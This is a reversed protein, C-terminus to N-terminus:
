GGRQQSTARQSRGARPTQQGRTASLVTRDRVSPAASTARHPERFRLQALPQSDMPLGAGIGSYMWAAAQREQADLGPDPEVAPTQFPLLLGLASQRHERTTLPM